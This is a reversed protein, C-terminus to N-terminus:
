ADTIGKNERAYTHTPVPWEASSPHASNCHRQHMRVVEVSCKAHLAVTESVSGMILRDFGRRGRSGLVILDAKWEEAIALISRAITEKPEAVVCTTTLGVKALLEGGSKAAAGAQTRGCRTLEALQEPSYYPYEGVLAPYEPISILKFESQKPWPQNAVLRLAAETHDSGDTPVLVRMGHALDRDPSSRVIEVSCEAHRMVAQVTSGVLLRGVAGRGHSGMLILDATWQEAARLLAHRPNDLIVNPSVQWGAEALLKAQEELSRQTSQKLEDLLSPTKSFFYPDVVGVVAFESGAPWPRKVAEQMVADSSSSGDLAILIRMHARWATSARDDSVTVASPDPLRPPSNLKVTNLLRLSSKGWANV